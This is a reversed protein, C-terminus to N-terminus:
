LFGSLVVLLAVVVVALILYMMKGGEKQIDAIYLEDRKKIAAMSHGQSEFAATADIGAFEMIKSIGGPHEDLYSSVDYVKNELIIWCDEESM